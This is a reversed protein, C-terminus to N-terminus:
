GLAAFQERGEMLFDLYYSLRAKIELRPV